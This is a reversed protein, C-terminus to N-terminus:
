KPDVDSDVKSDCTHRSSEAVFHKAARRSPASGTTSGVPTRNQISSSIPTRNGTSSEVPTRHGSSGAGKSDHIHHFSEDVSNKLGRRPTRNGTSGVGPSSM